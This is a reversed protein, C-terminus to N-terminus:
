SIYTIDGKKNGSISVHLTLLVPKIIFLIVFKDCITFKDSMSKDTPSLDIKFIALSLSSIAAFFRALKSLIYPQALTVRNMISGTKKPKM